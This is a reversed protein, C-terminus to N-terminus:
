CRIDQNQCRHLVCRFAIRLAFQLIWHIMLDEFASQARPISRPARRKSPRVLKAWDKRQAIFVCRTFPEVTRLVSLALIRVTKWPAWFVRQSRLFTCCTALRWQQSWFAASEQPFINKCEFNAKQFQFNMPETSLVTTWMDWFRFRYDFQNGLGSM